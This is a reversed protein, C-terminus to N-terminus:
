QILRANFIHKNRVRLHLHRGGNEEQMQILFTKKDPITFLPIAVVITQASRNRILQTNGLICAPSLELEQSATRKSKKSDRIFFRLLKINYDLASRNELEIQFYINADDAYLGKLIIGSGFNMEKLQKGTPRKSLVKEANARVLDNTGGPLFVAVPQVSTSSREMKINVAPPQESYFLSYSYFNGDATIITLNTERFDTRAAKLQLVNEVGTAKQVLVDQSGRDMSKIASPFILNTTKAATIAIPYSEIPLAIEQAKADSQTLFYFVAVMWVVSKM